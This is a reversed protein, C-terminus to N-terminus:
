SLDQLQDLMNAAAKQEAARKSSACGRASLGDDLIVQMTFLPEHDSGGREVITYTPLARGGGQLWEQLMTKADKPPACQEHLMPLWYHHIIARAADLGSDLYIAGLLAECADALNSLTNRGGSQEEQQSLYLADGLKWQKAVTVLAQRAALAALRQALAGEAEEPYQTYLMDSLVLGLVRDGLFELRQNHPKDAYGASRHTLAQYLLRTDEFQYLLRQQLHQILESM